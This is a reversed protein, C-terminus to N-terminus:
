KLNSSEQEAGSDVVKGVLDGLKLVKKIFVTLQLM